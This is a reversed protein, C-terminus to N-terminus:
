PLKYQDINKCKINFDVHYHDDHRVWSAKGPIFINKKIYDGYVTKYLLPQLEPDFIVRKMGIGYKQAVKHLTILHAGLAEFDITYEKYLGKVDFEVNYGWKNFLNTPLYLSEGKRNVVPVTFDVSLGNQHTKHPKFPGGKRLGSEAYKFVKSPQEKELLAFSEVVIKRVASHVYTRGLIGALASYSLYNNGYSPLKVGKELRGKSTTGYCTSEEEALAVTSIFTLASILIFIFNIM